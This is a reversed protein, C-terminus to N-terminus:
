QPEKHTERRMTIHGLSYIDELSIRRSRVAYHIHAVDEIQDRTIGLKGLEIAMLRLELAGDKRGTIAELEADAEDIAFAEVLKRGATLEAAMLDLAAVFAAYANRIGKM